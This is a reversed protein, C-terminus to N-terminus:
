HALYESRGWGCGCPVRCGVAGQERSRNRSRSRISISHQQFCIWFRLYASLLPSSLWSLLLLLLLLLILSRFDHPHTHGFLDTYLSPTSIESPALFRIHIERPGSGIRRSIDDDDDMSPARCRRRRLFRSM